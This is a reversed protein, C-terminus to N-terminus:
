TSAACASNSWQSSGGARSRTRLSPNLRGVSIGLDGALVPSRWRGAGSAEAHGALARQTWSKGRTASATACRAKSRACTCQTRGRTSLDRIAGDGPDPLGCRACCGRGPTGGTARQRSCDQRTGSPAPDALAGGSRYGRCRVNCDTAPRGRKYVVCRRPKVRSLRLLKVLKAATTWPACCRQQRGAPKPWRSPSPTGSCGFGCAGKTIESM